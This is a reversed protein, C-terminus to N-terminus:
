FVRTIGLRQNKFENFPWRQRIADLLSWYRTRSLLDSSM